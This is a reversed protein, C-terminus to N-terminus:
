LKGRTVSVTFNCSAKNGDHDWVVYSMTHQGVPFKDGSRKEPVVVRAIGVNDEYDPLSWFIVENESVSIDKPCYKFRPPYTDAYNM